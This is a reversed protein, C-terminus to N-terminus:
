SPESTLRSSGCGMAADVSAPSVFVKDRVGLWPWLAAETGGADQLRRPLYSVARVLFKVTAKCM